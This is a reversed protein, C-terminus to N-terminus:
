RHSPAMQWWDWRMLDTGDGLFRFVLDHVGEVHHLRTKLLQYNNDSGTSNVNLTGIVPGRTSDLHIQIKANGKASAVYASFRRAGKGFDVGRIILSDGNDISTVCLNRTGLPETKLGYGWAM